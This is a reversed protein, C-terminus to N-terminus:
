IHVLGEVNIIKKDLDIDIIKNFYNLDLKKVDDDRTRYVHDDLKGLKLKGNQKSLLKMDKLSKKLM